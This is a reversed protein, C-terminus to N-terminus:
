GKGNGCGGKSMRFLCSAQTVPKVKQVKSVNAYLSMFSHNM